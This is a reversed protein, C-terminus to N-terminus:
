SGLQVELMKKMGPPHTIVSIYWSNSTQPSISSVAVVRFYYRTSHYLNHFTFNFNSVRAVTVYSYRSWKQQVDYANIQYGGDCDLADWGIQVWTSGKNIFNPQGLPPMLETHILTYTLYNHPFYLSTM